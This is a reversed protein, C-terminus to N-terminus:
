WREKIYHLLTKDDKPDVDSPIKTNVITIHQIDLPPDDKRPNPTFLLKWIRARSSPPHNLQESDNADESNTCAVVQLNTGSLNTAVAVIADKTVALNAFAASLRLTEKDGDEALGDLANFYTPPNEQQIKALLTTITRFALINKPLEYPSNPTNDNPTNHTNSPPISSNGGFLNSNGVLRDSDSDDGPNRMVMSKAKRIIRKM